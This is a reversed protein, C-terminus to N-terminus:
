HRSLCASLQPSHADLVSSEDHFRRRLISTRESRHIARLSLKGDAPQECPFSVLQEIRQNCSDFCLWGISNM